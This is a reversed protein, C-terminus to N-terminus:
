VASPPDQRANARARRRARRARWRSVVQLRWVVRTLVFGTVGAVWGCVLSGFILPYGITGLNDWLWGFSYEINDVTIRMDLLWAGLRYTFYFIPAITVPNTIWVLAVSIPLNCRSVIALAAAVVMQMPVPIFACFLGIFVGGAASRRNLHWIEGRQLLHALPQLAPNERLESPTPLYRLLRPKPM